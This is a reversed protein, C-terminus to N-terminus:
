PEVGQGSGKEPFRQYHRQQGRLIEVSDYTKKEAVQDPRFIGETTPRLTDITVGSTQFVQPDKSGRLLLRLTGVDLALALKEGDWPTVALIVPITDGRGRVGQSVKSDPVALVRVNQLLVTSSPTEKEDKMSVMVDVRDEPRLHEQIDGGADVPVSIARYGPPLLEKLLPSRGRPVLTSELIPADESIPEKVTRGMLSKPETFGGQPMKEIPFEISHLHSSNLVTGPALETAAAVMALKTAVKGEQGAPNTRFALAGYVGVAAILGSIVAVMWMLFKMRKGM